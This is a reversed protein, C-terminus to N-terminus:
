FRNAPNATDCHEAVSREVVRLLHVTIERPFRGPSKGKGQRNWILAFSGALVAGLLALGDTAASDVQLKVSVYHGIAAGALGALLPFLYFNFVLRLFLTESLGVMVSQGVQANPGNQLELVVPRRKLLRGFIGAGCGKGAYCVACATKGGLRVSAIEGSVAVILGQQEIM